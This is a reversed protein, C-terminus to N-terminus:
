CQCDGKWGAGGSRELGGGGMFSERGGQEELRELGGGSMFNEKRNRKISFLALVCRSFQQTNCFYHM